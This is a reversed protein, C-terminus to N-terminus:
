AIKMWERADALIKHVCTKSRNIRLAIARETLGERHMEIIEAIQKMNFPRNGHKCILSCIEYFDFKNVFSNLQQNYRERDEGRLKADERIFKSSHWSKLPRDKRGTDEIDEFDLKSYWYAELTKFEQNNLRKM